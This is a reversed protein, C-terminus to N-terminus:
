WSLELYQDSYYNFLSWIASHIYCDYEYINVRVCVCVCARACVCVCVCLCM